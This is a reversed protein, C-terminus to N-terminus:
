AEARCRLQASFSPLSSFPGRGPSRRKLPGPQRYGRPQGSHPMKRASEARRRGEEVWRPIAEADAGAKRCLDAAQRVLPEDLEGESTGEFIGAVEALLDARGGALERLESVAAAEEDSSLERWRAHHCAEGTLQAVLIRDAQSRKDVV